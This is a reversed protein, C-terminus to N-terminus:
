PATAHMSRPAPQTGDTADQRYILAGRHQKTQQRNNNQRRPNCTKQKNCRERQMTHTAHQMNRAATARQLRRTARYMYHTAHQMCQPQMSRPRTARRVARPNHITIAPQLSQRVNRWPPTARHVNCTADKASRPAHRAQHRSCRGRRRVAGCVCVGAPEGLGTTVGGGGGEGEAARRRSFRGGEGWVWVRGWRRGAAGDCICARVRAYRSRQAVGTCTRAANGGGGICNIRM